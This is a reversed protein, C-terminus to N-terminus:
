PGKLRHGPTSASSKTTAQGCADLVFSSGESTVVPGGAVAVPEVGVAIDLTNSQYAADPIGDADSDTDDCDEDVAFVTVHYNGKTDFVHPIIHTRRTEGTNPDFEGAGAPIDVREAPAGDGWDVFVHTTTDDGPDVSTFTLEYDHGIAVVHGGSITVM